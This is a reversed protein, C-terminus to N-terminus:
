WGRLRNEIALVDMIETNIYYYRMSTGVRMLIYNNDQGIITTSGANRELQWSVYKHNVDNSSARIYSARIFEMGLVTLLQMNDKVYRISLSTSTATPMKLNDRIELMIEQATLQNTTAEM